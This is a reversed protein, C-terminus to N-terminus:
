KEYAEINLFSALDVIKYGNAVLWQLYTELIEGINSTTDHLLVISGPKTNNQLKKILKDKELVTDLSRLSWGISQMNVSKFAKKLLPNTVGYPPRFFLPSKGIVNNIINNTAEIEKEMKRSSFVDFYKSHSYSHNGIIHGSKAINQLIHPNANVNKGTVFFAALVNYKELVKLIEPTNETDPGDDFTIAVAKSSSKGKCYSFFYYNMCIFYSGAITIILYIVLAPVIWWLTIKDLLSGAIIIIVFLIAIINIKTSM